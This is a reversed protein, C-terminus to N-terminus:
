ELPVRKCHIWAFFGKNGIDVGLFSLPSATGFLVLLRTYVSTPWGVLFLLRVVKRDKEGRHGLFDANTFCTRKVMVVRCPVITGIGALEDIWAFAVALEWCDREDRGDREDDERAKRM